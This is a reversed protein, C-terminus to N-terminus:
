FQAIPAVIGGDKVEGLDCGASITAQLRAGKFDPHICRVYWQNDQIRRGWKCDLCHFPKNNM